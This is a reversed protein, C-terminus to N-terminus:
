RFLPGFPDVDSYLPSKDLEGLILHLWLVLDLDRRPRTRVAIGGDRNDVVNGDLIVQAGDSMSVILEISEGPQGPLPGTIWVGYLSANGIKYPTKGIRAELSVPVRPYRRFQSTGALLEQIHHAMEDASLDPSIRLSDEPLEFQQPAVMLVPLLAAGKLMTKVPDHSRFDVVLIGATDYMSLVFEDISESIRTVKFQKQNLVRDLDLLDTEDACLWIRSRNTDM